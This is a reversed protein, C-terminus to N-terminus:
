VDDKCGDIHSGDRNNVEEKDLSSAKRKLRDVNQECVAIAFSGADQLHNSVALVLFIHGLNHTPQMRLRLYLNFDLLTELLFDLKDLFDLSSKGRALWTM